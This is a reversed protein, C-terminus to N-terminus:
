LPSSRRGLRRLGRDPRLWLQWRSTFLRYGDSRPRRLDIVCPQDAPFCILSGLRRDMPRLLLMRRIANVVRGFRSPEPLSAVWAAGLEPELRAVIEDCVPGDGIVAFVVRRPVRELVQDIEWLVGPSSGVRVVVLTARGMLSRVEGQWAEHAVYLRAAGLEHLPEGPRGVAVVPGVASLAAASEQEPTTAELWRHAWTM